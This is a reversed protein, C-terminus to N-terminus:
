GNGKARMELGLRIGEQFWAPGSTYPLDQGPKIRWWVALGGPGEGKGDRYDIHITGAGTSAGGYTGIGKAGNAIATAIFRSKKADDMDAVLYDTAKGHKHQSTKKRKDPQKGGIPTIRLPEGFAAALEKAKRQTFPDLALFNAPDRKGTVSSVIIPEGAPAAGADPMATLDVSAPEIVTGDPLASEKQKLYPAPDLATPGKRIEFHLQPETVSGTKGSLAIPDGAKVSDGKKVSLSGNHAYATVMGDAHRILVLNGYGKLEDGAYAVVGDAAAGVVTGEPMAINIGENKTGDPKNGFPSIIAGQAPLRFMGTVPPTASADPAAATEQPVRAANEVFQEPTGQGLATNYHRKWYAAQGALDAPIPEQIGIFYLRAFAAGVLPKDLDAETMTAIDLGLEDKLKEAARYVGGSGLAVRRKVETFGANTSVQFIGKDGKMRFSGPAQGFNSEQAAVRLMFEGSTGDPLVGDIANVAAKTVAYGSKQPLLLSANAILGARDVPVDPTISGEQGPAVPQEPEAPVAKSDMERIAKVAEDAIAAADTNYKKQVDAPQTELWKMFMDRDNAYYSTAAGLNASQQRIVRLRLSSTAEDEASRYKEVQGQNYLKATAAQHAQFPALLMPEPPGGNRGKVMVKKASGRKSMFWVEFEPKDSNTDTPQLFVSKGLFSQWQNAQTMPTGAPVEGATRIAEDLAQPTFADAMAPDDFNIQAGKLSEATYANLWEFESGPRALGIISRQKIEFGQPNTLQDIKAKGAGNLFIRSTVFRPAVMELSKDFARQPDGLLEINLRYASKFMEEAEVPVSAPGGGPAVIKDLLAARMDKAFNKDDLANYSAIRDSLSIKNGPQNMKRVAEQLQDPPLLASGDAVAILFNADDDPISAMILDGVYDGQDNRLTKLLHVMQLAQTVQNPDSSSIMGRLQRTLAPPMHKAIAVGGLVRSQVNPDSLGNNLIVAGIDNNFDDRYKELIPTLGNGPQSLVAMHNRYDMEAAGNALFQRRETAAKRLDVAIKSRLEETNVEKVFEQSNFRSSPRKRGFDDAQYEVNIEYENGNEVAAAWAEADEPSVEGRYLHSALRQGTSASTIAERALKKGAEAVNAPIVGMGVMADYNTDVTDTYKTTTGGTAAFATGAKIADAVGQDLSKIQIEAQRKQEAMTVDTMRGGVEMMGRARLSAVLRPAVKGVAAIRADLIGQMRAAKDEPKINIDGQITALQQSLGADFSATYNQVIATDYANRAEPTQFSREPWVNFEGTESIGVFEGAATQADIFEKEANQEQGRKTLKDGISQLQGGINPLNLNARATTLSGSQILSARQQETQIAM